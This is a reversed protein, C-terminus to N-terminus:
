KDAKDDPRTIITDLHEDYHDIPEVSAGSRKVLVNSAMDIITANLFGILVTVAQYEAMRASHAITAPDYYLYALYGGVLAAIISQIVKYRRNQCLWKISVHKGKRRSLYALLGTFYIVLGVFVLLISIHQINM